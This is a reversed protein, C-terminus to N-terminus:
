DIATADPIGSGLCQGWYTGPESRWAQRHLWLLSERDSILHVQEQKSLSGPGKDLCRERLACLYPRRAGRCRQRALTAHVTALKPDIVAREFGGLEPLRTNGAIPEELGALMNSVRREEPVLLVGMRRLWEGLRVRSLLVSTPVGLVLPLSVPLTWFFFSARLVFAFTAWVGAIVSGAGHAMLAKSWSIEEGRNQGAWELSVNLLAMVVFRSHALMRIPALLSSVLSEVVSGTTAMLVGGFDSARGSMALDALALLKPVFLLSVSSFALWLAWKPHWQPWLPFLQHPSPFYNVPWLTFRTTEISVLVLFALWLPSSLYSMIGNLFAMRHAFRIRRGFLLVSLHQLNGQAWRRDRALEDVLSPPSEEYSEGLAPELWVEYGARGMYAAEVFDHSLVPGKFVGVGRLARLGCYRMFPSTRLLANHGWYAAEGLQLAALGTGILGGYARNAFQQVRAFSSRANALAPNTQIIGVQPECQMIRVMRVLTEGGLLSDADLVVFYEYGRGWRRLFDAINGSKYRLNVRRRRYYIRDKAGLEECLRYWAAQEALLVEPDKSDSLIFFTFHELQGTSELSRYVARMGRLSREVSEHYIPMVVATRALEVRNLEEESHRRVLSYPDGGFRRMVFGFVAVVFGVSVWAFLLAFLVVIGKELDTGGHYPLVAVMYYTGVLTQTVVWIALALRRLFAARRWAWTRESREGIGAAMTQLTM